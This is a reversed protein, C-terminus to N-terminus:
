GAGELAQAIFKSYASWNPGRAPHKTAHGMAVGGNDLRYGQVNGEIYIPAPPMRSWMMFGLIIVVQPDLTNLLTPWGRRAQTWALSNPRAAAGDGVSTPVYNTFAVKNWEETAQEVSPTACKCLAQTLKVMTRSNQPWLTQSAGVILSPHDHLPQNLISSHEVWNYCSEALLLLRTASKRYEPGIWPEWV